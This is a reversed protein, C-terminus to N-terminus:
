FSGLIKMKISKAKSSTATSTTTPTTPITAHTYQAKTFQDEGKLMRHFKICLDMRSIPGKLLRCVSLKNQNLDFKGDINEGIKVKM